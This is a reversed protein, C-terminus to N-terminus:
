SSIFDPFRSNISRVTPRRRHRHSWVHISSGVENKSAHTQIDPLPIEFQLLFVLIQEDSFEGGRGMEWPYRPPPVKVSLIRRGESWLLDLYSTMDDLWRQYSHIWRFLCEKRWPCNLCIAFLAPFSLFCNLWCKGRFGELSSENQMCNQLILRRARRAFFNSNERYWVDSPCGCKQTLSFYIERFGRTKEAWITEGAREVQVWHWGGLFPLPFSSSSIQIVPCLPMERLSFSLFPFLKRTPPCYTQKIRHKLFLQRRRKTWKKKKWCGGKCRVVWIVIILRSKRAKSRFRNWTKKM